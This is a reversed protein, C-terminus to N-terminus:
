AEKRRYPTDSFLLGLEHHDGQYLAGQVFRLEGHLDEIDLKFYAGSAQLSEYFSEISNVMQGNVKMINEGVEIGLRDAPTGPIVGLVKLGKNMPHFYCRRLRESNRHRYNIYEKGLITLLVAALSLPALFLGGVAIATAGVGMLILPTAIKEAAEKPYRGRVKYDIGLLFPFLILSYTQEGFSVYPWYEAFPTIAGTPLLFFFPIIALKKLRHEGVWVGRNSLSLGPYTERLNTRKLLIGEAILLIGLIVPFVTLNIPDFLDERLWQQNELITPLFLLLLFSVGVTYVPSLFLFRGSLSFLIVVVSLLLLSSFSVVFGTGIIVISLVIGTLLSFLWTSKWETFVDFVKTGFNQRERKVRKYGALIVLLVSWYLLPNLFLKTLGKALEVLWAEIM